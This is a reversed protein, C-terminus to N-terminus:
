PDRILLNLSTSVVSIIVGGAIAAVIADIDLTPPFGGISIIDLTLIDAIAAVLLLLGANLVLSFLGLTLFRLPISLLRAVPRVFANVLGFVLAVTGLVVVAGLADDTLDIRIGPVLLSAALLAVANVVVRVIRM